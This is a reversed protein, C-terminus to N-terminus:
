RDGGDEDGEGRDEGDLEDGTGCVGCTGNGPRDVYAACVPCGPVTCGIGSCHGYGGQGRDYGLPWVSRLAEGPTTGLGKWRSGFESRINAFYEGGPGVTWRQFTIEYGADLLRRIDTSTDHAAKRADQQVEYPDPNSQV